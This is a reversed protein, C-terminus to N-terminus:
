LRACGCRATAQKNQNKTKGRPTGNYQNPVHQIFSSPRMNAHDELSRRGHAPTAPMLWTSSQWTRLTKTSDLVQATFMLPSGGIVWETLFFILTNYIHTYICCTCISVRIYIYTILGQLWRVILFHLDKRVCWQSSNCCLSPQWVASFCGASSASYPTTLCIQSGPLWPGALDVYSTGPWVPSGFPFKGRM